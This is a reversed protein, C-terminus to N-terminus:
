NTILGDEKIVISTKSFTVTTTVDVLVYIEIYDNETVDFVGTVSIAGVDAGTGIKREV